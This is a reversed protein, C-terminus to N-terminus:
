IYVFVDSPALHYPCVHRAVCLSARNRPSHKNTGGRKTTNKKKGGWLVMGWTVVSAVSLGHVADVLDM